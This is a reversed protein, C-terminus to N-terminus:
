SAEGELDRADSPTAEMLARNIRHLAANDRLAAAHLQKQQELRAVLVANVAQQVTATKTLRDCVSRLRRLQAAQALVLRTMPAFRGATM